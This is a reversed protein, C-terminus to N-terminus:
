SESRDRATQGATAGIAAAGPNVSTTPVVVPKTIMRTYDGVQVGGRTTYGSVNQQFQANRVIFGSQLLRGLSAIALVLLPISSLLLLFDDVPSAKKAVAAGMGLAVLFVVAPSAIPHFVPPALSVLFVAWMAAAKLAYPLLANISALISVLAYLVILVSAIWGVFPILACLALVAFILLSAVMGAVLDAWNRAVFMLVGLVTVAAVAAIGAPWVDHRDCLLAIAANPLFLAILPAFSFGQDDAQRKM